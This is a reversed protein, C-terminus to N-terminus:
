IATLSGGTGSVNSIAGTPTDLFLNQVDVSTAGAALVDFTLFIVTSASGVNVGGNAANTRSFAVTLRETGSSSNANALYNVAVGGQELVSGAGDTRFDLVTDDYLLEFGGGFFDSVNQIRVAVTITSGDPGSQTLFVEDSAGPADGTFTGSVQGSGGGSPGGSSSADSGGGGCAVTMAMVTILLCTWSARM